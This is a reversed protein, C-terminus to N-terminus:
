ARWSRSNGLRLDFLRTLLSPFWGRYSKRAYCGLVSFLSLLRRRLRLWIGAPGPCFEFYTEYVAMDSFPYTYFTFVLTVAAATVLAFVPPVRAKLAFLITVFRSDAFVCHAEQTTFALYSGFEHFVERSSSFAFNEM